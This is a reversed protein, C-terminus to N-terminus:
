DEYADDIGAFPNAPQVPMTHTHRGPCCGIPTHIVRARAASWTTVYVTHAAHDATKGTRQECQKITLAPLRTTKTM